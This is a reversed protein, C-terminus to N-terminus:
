VYKTILPKYNQYGFKKNKLSIKTKKLINIRVLFDVLFDVAKLCPIFQPIKIIKSLYQNLYSKM